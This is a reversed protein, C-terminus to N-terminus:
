GKKDKIELIYKVISPDQWNYTNQFRASAKNQKNIFITTPPSNVNFDKMLNRNPDYYLKLNDVKLGHHFDKLKEFDLSNDPVAIIKVDAIKLKDLEQQLQNLSKLENVCEICWNAWFNLIIFKDSFEKLYIEKANSDYFRAVGIKKPVAYNYKELIKRYAQYNRNIQVTSASSILTTFFLINVFLLLKNM